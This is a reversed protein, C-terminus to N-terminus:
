ISKENLLVEGVNKLVELGYQLNGHTCTECWYERLLKKEEDFVSSPNKIYYVNNSDCIKKMLESYLIWIKQRCIYSNIIPNNYTKLRGASHKIIFANSPIVPPPELHYVKFSTSENILKLLHKFKELSENIRKKIIEFPVQVCDTDIPLDERGPIVFDFPEDNKFFGLINHGNSYICSVVSYFSKDTIKKRLNKNLIKKSSLLSKKVNPKYQEFGCQVFDPIYNMIINDRYCDNLVKLHSHGIFLVKM